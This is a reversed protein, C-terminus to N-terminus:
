REPGEASAMSEISSNLQSQQLTTSTTPSPLNVAACSAILQLLNLTLLPQLRM